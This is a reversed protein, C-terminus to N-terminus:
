PAPAEAVIIGPEDVRAALRWGPQVVLFDEEDWQGDVLRRFLSMDGQVKDFTWGNDAAKARVQKEFSDDPELGMEIFTLQKYNRMPNGLIEYLYKAEEEGYKEVMEQYSMDMGALHSISMQRLEGEAEGRELWGTTQFYTAPNADFYVRYREKSGLFLTICDHARPIVLPISRSILGATGNNCLAFGLLIAQYRGADVADVVAQIRPLMKDQGIDHLGKPLFEIDVQNKSRAVSACLERYFIECSILKLRM